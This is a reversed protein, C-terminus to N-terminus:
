QHFAPYAQDGGSELYTLLDLIEEKTLSNLLGNPMLSTKSEIREDIESKTVQKPKQGVDIPNSLLRIVKDDEHVVVGSVVVGDQTSIIQTRFKQDIIKSPQVIETLLGLRDLKGDRIKQSIESLSLGIKGEQGSVPHCAKCSATEFVKQGNSFSRGQNLEDLSSVLDEVTWQRVFNKVAFVWIAAGGSPSDDSPQDPISRFEDYTRSLDTVHHNTMGVVVAVYQKDHISYTILSSSPLDDLGVQWLLEGSTDDFVKLSPDLDGCFLLGGGTALLSTTPPATLDFAWALEKKEVDVAQLLGLKGDSSDPHAASSLGVGSSLLKLGEPGMKMCWQTLPLYLLKTHPSYSTPPWSRAGFASPCVVCPRDLSPLLDPDITKAGTKQDISTIVNQLGADLSFLYQGTAADLADLIAMKGVNMVVKRNVGDIPLTVIQREFVWDLDWQDNALHQYHWVLQGTDPNLALTCNTYLADNTIGERSVPHLLPGTDYTPAVGFYILNLEADYTGQHWVSGGSRRELSLGNWSNGHPEGPRAITNFRWLEEGSEINLAVIFGGKPAGSATVGQIVKDGVVLPASRLQYYGRMASPTDPTISHDWILDGTRANLALLHLDSTPVLVKDGHLGLGMKQSSINSKPSYQHRWLVDGNSADIALVTDPFTHLYMIGDHVLPTPMSPGDRLPARWALELDAVNERNIQQLPSFSLGDYTRGWQLWDNPSPRHLMQDTVASLNALIEKQTASAVVPMDPDDDVGELRPIILKALAASDSPLPADSAPFGTSALIYALINTYIEDSLSGPIGGPQLPMRRLHFLLSDASKGRWTRDFRRGILSPALHIGALDAGHCSACHKAYDSKGMSAQAASFSLVPESTSQALCGLQWSGPLMTALWLFVARRNMMTM